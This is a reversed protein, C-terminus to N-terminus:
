IIKYEWENRGAKLILLKETWKTGRTDKFGEKTKVFESGIVLSQGVEMARMRRRMMKAKDEWEVAQIINM